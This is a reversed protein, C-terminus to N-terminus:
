PHMEQLITELDELMAEPHLTAKNQACEDVYARIADLTADRQHDRAIHKRGEEVIDTM